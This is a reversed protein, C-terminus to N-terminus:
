NSIFYTYNDGIPNSTEYFEIYRFDESIFVSGDPSIFEYGKKQSNYVKNSLSRSGLTGDARKFQIEHETVFIYSDQIPITKGQTGQYEYINWVKLYKNYYDSFSKTPIQQTVTTKNSLTNRIIKNLSESLYNLVKNTENSNSYNFTQNNVYQLPENQFRSIIKTKEDDTIDLDYVSKIMSSVQQQLYSTNNDYRNQLTSAAYGLSSITPQIPDSNQYTSKQKNEYYEWQKTMTNYFEYGMMNGRSDFYEYRRNMSNYKKTLSQSFCLFGTM